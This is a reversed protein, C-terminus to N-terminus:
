EDERNLQSRTSKAVNGPRDKSKSYSFVICVYMCVYLSSLKKKLNLKVQIPVGIYM